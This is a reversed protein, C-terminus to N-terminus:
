MFGDNKKNFKHIINSHLKYRTILEEPSKTLNRFIIEIYKQVEHLTGVFFANTIILDEHKIESILM